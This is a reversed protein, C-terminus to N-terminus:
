ARVPRRRRASAGPTDQGTGPSTELTVRRAVDRVVPSITRMYAAFQEDEESAPPEGAPAPAAVALEVGFYHRMYAAFAADEQPDATDSDHGSM